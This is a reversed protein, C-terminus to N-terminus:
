RNYYINKIPGWGRFKIPFGRAIYGVGFCIESPGFFGACSPVRSRPWPGGVISNADKTSSSKKMKCKAVVVVVVVVVVFWLWHLALIYTV